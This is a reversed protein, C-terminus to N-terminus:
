QRIVYEEPPEVGLLHEVFYDWTRRVVYPENAYGHNRNPLVVLDFDKNHKILEDIVLLTANPHVNDDLTGYMLLLQGELNEALNQNAQSDFSDTGDDNERVLGQYKEGWTYDYSRNDHNGATSVAVKFFDPYRLIADTSAFGGGSHGYIGVRNLDMQRFRGALQRLTAIHDPIGNDGMNGYYSDHFAKSRDPTGFADVTVVIFGLEALAHPNGAPGVNFGRAGIPGVQPGPYVYDVVPYQATSDFDTPFYLLGHVDTVRDRGKAVFPVPWQWGAELLRSIDAEELTQVVRAQRDLVETVPGVTRRSRTDVFFQGSPSARIDHHYAPDTMLTLGSGDYGVRYLQQYYPDTGTERGFATFYVVQNADDAHLVEHVLWAGATVRNMLEGSIADYRYLHGWGDRESFWIIQSGSNVVKWSPLGYGIRAEVFTPSTETLITRTEGTVADAVVLDLRKFNRQGITFFVQHNTNGWQVDKWTSDVMLGCCSTNVATQTPVDIATRGRAELDFIFLDFTPVVSDGPLGYRYSHLKPRGTATELLHLAEVRRQDLRHTAIRRSDPSWAVVPPRDRDQRPATVQNCCQDNTAYGLYPEGDDSLRQESGSAVERVWLDHDRIFAVWRGDPSGTEGDARSKATDPGICAYQGNIRCSWRISDGVFFRVVRGSEQFEFETFPLKYPEYSTDAAVSLASALRVHDFAPERSGRSPDVVIFEHGEPLHDRYWFHDGAFWRPTVEEHAVLSRANSGLFQEARSYDASTVQAALATRGALLFGIAVGLRLAFSSRTM